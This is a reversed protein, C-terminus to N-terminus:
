SGLEITADGNAAIVVRMKKIYRNYFQEREATTMDARAVRCAEDLVEKMNMHFSQDVKQRVESLVVTIRVNDSNGTCFDDLYCYSFGSNVLANKIDPGCKESEVMVFFRLEPMASILGWYDSDSSVLIFSKVGNEYYERCTGTTLRVDVLSKNEKVREILIHEIPINTFKELLKWAPTTHVDDYLIIKSIKELLAEQDLNNLAAYLKYPDSNECDVVVAVKESSDLFQYIGAKTRNGADTVKSMDEFYDQNAEYLLQVFKKDTYLINGAEVYEWNMYVQYPYRSLNAYYKAAASKAGEEKLGNPMIFLARIYEWKLWFPFIEKCNNIRDAIHRNIDIIYQSPKVNAREIQIGDERLQRLSDQPIYEPLSHLNKMESSMQTWIKKFGREIATRLMCLNRIIRANKDQELQTYIEMKPPEHENEFISRPVGILYAFRSVVSYTSNEYDHYTATSEKKETDWVVENQGLNNLM